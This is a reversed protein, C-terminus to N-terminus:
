SFYDTAPSYTNTSDVVDLIVENLNAEIEDMMRSMTFGSLIKKRGNESLKACVDPNHYLYEIKQALMSADEPEFILGTEGEVLLEGTGGTLTGVVVLGTAMAEQMIRALPEEWTSPFILVDFKRLLDPMEKRIVRPSFCVKDKLNNDEVLKELYAEYDPHGSGNISLTVDAVYPNRSLIAMAEIATHVGKHPVLSGAYLLFLPRKSGDFREQSPPKFLDDEVGNYVVKMRNNDIHANCALSDKIAQSVCLVRKFELPFRNNEDEIKRLFFLSILQKAGRLYRRRAPDQWYATHLDTAYPWDNAVYYVVRGPCLKEALWAVGKSLNWMVHVFIIDPKFTKIVKETQMLNNKLEHGHALFHLPQYHYINSELTLLRDIGQEYVPKNLGYTSTLVHTTHGRVQLLNNIDRVLQEWGGIMFPPYFASILLIRM